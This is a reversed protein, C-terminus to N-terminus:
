HKVDLVIRHGNLLQRVSESDAFRQWANFALEGVKLGATFLDVVPEIGLEYTQYSMYGAPSLKDPFVRIGANNLEKVSVQGSIVAVTHLTAPLTTIPVMGSEGLLLENAHHEALLLYTMPPCGNRSWEQMEKVSQHKINLGAAALDKVMPIALTKQDGVVVVQENVLASGTELMLKVALPASYKRMDCPPEHENTGLVLIGREDCYDLDIEGERMEWPEWMLCLTTRPSFRALFDKGFPRLHGSNTVINVSRLDQTTLEEVIEFQSVGLAQAYSVFSQYNDDASGFATDRAYVLVKKAGALLPILANYQYPGNAVETLVTAGSLNLAYHSILTNILSVARNLESM